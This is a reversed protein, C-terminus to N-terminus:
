FLAMVPADVCHIPCGHFFRATSLVDISNCPGGHLLYCVPSFTRQLNRFQIECLAETELVSASFCHAPACFLFM